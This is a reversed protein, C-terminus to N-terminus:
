FVSVERNIANTEMKTVLNPLFKVVPDFVFGVEVVAVRGRTCLGERTTLVRSPKGTSSPFTLKISNDQYAVQSREVAIEADSSLPARTVSGDNLSGIRVPNKNVVQSYRNSDMYQYSQQLDDAQTTVAPSLNGDTDIVTVPDPSGPASQPSCDSTVVNQGIQWRFVKGSM